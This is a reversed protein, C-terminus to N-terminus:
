YVDTSIPQTGYSPYNKELNPKQDPKVRSKLRYLHISAPMIIGSLVLIAGCISLISAVVHFIVSDLIFSVVIDSTRGISTSFANDYTLAVTVFIMAFLSIGTNGILYVNATMNDPFVFQKTSLLYITTVIAPIGNMWFLRADISVHKIKQSILYIMAWLFSALVALLCGYVYDEEVQRVQGFIMPPQICFIVGSLCTVISFIDLIGCFRRFIISSIIAVFLPSSAILTNADSLYIMQFSQYQVINVFFSLTGGVIIVYFVDWKTEPVLRIKRIAIITLFIISAFTGRCWTIMMPSADDKLLRGFLSALAFCCGSIMGLLSGLGPYQRVTRESNTTQNALQNEDEQIEDNFTM